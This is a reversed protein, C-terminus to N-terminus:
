AVLGEERLCQEFHLLERRTHAAMFSEAIGSLPPPLVATHRVVGGLSLGDDADRQVWFQPRLRFLEAGVFHLKLQNTVTCTAPERRLTQRATVALETGCFFRRILLPVADVAVRFQFERTGEADFSGVRTTPGHVRRLMAPGFVADLAADMDKVGLLRTRPLVLQKMLEVTYKKRFFM